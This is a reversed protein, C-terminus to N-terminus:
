QQTARLAQLAELEQLKKSLRRDISTEYRGLKSFANGAEADRAFADGLKGLESQRRESANREACLVKMFRTIEAEGVVAPHPMDLPAIGFAIMHSEIRDLARREAEAWEEEAIAQERVFLGLEVRSARRLRWVLNM